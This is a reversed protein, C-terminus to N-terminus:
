PPEGRSRGPRLGDVTAGDHEPPGDVRDTLTTRQYEGKVKASDANGGEDQLNIGQVAVRGAGGGGDHGEAESAGAAVAVAFAAFLFPLAFRGTTTGELMAAAVAPNDGPCQEAWEM